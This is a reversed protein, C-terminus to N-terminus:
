PEVNWMRTPYCWMHTPASPERLLIIAACMTKTAINCHKKAVVPPLRCILIYSTYVTRFYINVCFHDRPYHSWWMIKGSGLSVDGVLFQGGRLGDGALDVGGWPSWRVNEARGAPRGPPSHHVLYKFGVNRSVQLWRDFFGCTVQKETCIGSFAGTLVLKSM